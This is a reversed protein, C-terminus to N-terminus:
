WHGRRRGENFFEQASQQEEETRFEQTCSGGDSFTFTTTFTQGQDASEQEERQNEREQEATRHAQFAADRTESRRRQRNERSTSAM